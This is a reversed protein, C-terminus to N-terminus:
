PEGNANTPAERGDSLQVDRASSLTLFRGNLGAVTDPRGILLSAFPVTLQFDYRVTLRIRPAATRAFNVGNAQLNGNIDIPDIQVSHATQAYSYRAAFGDPLPVGIQSLAQSVNSADFTIFGAAPSLPELSLSATRQVNALGDLPAGDAPNRDITPDTPLSTMASRAAAAVARDLTLRANVLLAYQVLIGIIALLIPLSMLFTIAVTGKDRMHLLHLYRRLLKV